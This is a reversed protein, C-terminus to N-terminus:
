RKRPYTRSHRRNKHKKAASLKLHLKNQWEPKLFLTVISPMTISNLIFTSWKRNLDQLFEFQMLSTKKTLVGLVEGGVQTCYAFNENERRRSGICFLSAHFRLSFTSAKPSENRKLDKQHTWRLIEDDNTTTTSETNRCCRFIHWGVIEKKPSKRRKTRKHFNHHIKNQVRMHAPHARSRFAASYLATAQRLAARFAKVAFTEKTILFTNIHGTLDLQFSSTFISM